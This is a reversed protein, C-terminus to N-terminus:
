ARVIHWLQNTDTTSGGTGSWGNIVTTSEANGNNLNVYLSTNGRNQITYATRNTFNRAITWEQSDDSTQHYGVVDTGSTVNSGPLDMYTRSSANQIKYVFSKGEVKSIIWLQPPVYHENLDRKTSRGHIKTNDASAGDELDIISGTKVNQIFYVGEEVTYAAM